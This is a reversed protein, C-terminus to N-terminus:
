PRSRGPVHLDCDTEFQTNTFHTPSHIRHPGDFKRCVWVWGMQMEVAAELLNGSSLQLYGVM